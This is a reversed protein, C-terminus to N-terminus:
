GQRSFVFKKGQLLIQEKGPEAPVARSRGSGLITSTAVIDAPAAVIDARVSSAVIDAPASGRHARM